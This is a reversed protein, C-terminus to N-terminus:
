LEVIPSIKPHLGGSLPNRETPFRGSSYEESRSDPACMDSTSEPMGFPGIPPERVGKPLRPWDKSEFVARGVVGWVLGWCLFTGIRSFHHAIPLPDKM